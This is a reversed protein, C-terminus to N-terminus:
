RRRAFGIITTDDYAQEVGRRRVKLQPFKEHFQDVLERQADDANKKEAKRLQQYRTRAWARARAKTDAILPDHRPGERVRMTYQLVIEMILDRDDEHLPLGRRWDDILGELHARVFEDEPRLRLDEDHLAREVLERVTRRRDKSKV